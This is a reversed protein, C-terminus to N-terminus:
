NHQGSQLVEELDQQWMTKCQEYEGFFRYFEGVSLLPSQVQLTWSEGALIAKEQTAEKRKQQLQLLQQLQKIHQYIHLLRAAVQQGKHKSRIPDEKGWIQYLKLLGLLPLILSGHLSDKTEEEKM